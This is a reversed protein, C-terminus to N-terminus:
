VTNVARPIICSM